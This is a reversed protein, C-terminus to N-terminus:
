RQEDYTLPNVIRSVPKDPPTIVYAKTNLANIPISVQVNGSHEKKTAQPKSITAFKYILPLLKSISM